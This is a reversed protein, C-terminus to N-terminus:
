YTLVPWSFTGAVTAVQALYQEADLGTLVEIDALAETRKKIGDVIVKSEAAKGTLIIADVKGQLVMASSGIWKGVQYVFTDVPLMKDAPLADIQEPCKTGTYGLLGANETMEKKLAPIGEIDAAAYKALQAVPVDGSSCLGMPGELGIMDNVDICIERMHAGVSVLDDLYAVIYNKDEAIEGRKQAVADIAAAHELAYYRSCKKVNANSGIRNRKLLEDCSMPNVMYAKTGLKAAVEAAIKMVCNYAHEGFKGIDNIATESIEYIGRQVPKLVGGPCIVCDVQFDIGDIAAAIDCNADLSAIEAVCNMGDFHKISIKNDKYYVTLIQM